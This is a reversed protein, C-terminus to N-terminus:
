RRGRVAMDAEHWGQEWAYHEERTTSAKYPNADRKRTARRAAAGQERARDIRKRQESIV